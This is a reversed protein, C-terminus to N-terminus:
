AAEDGVESRDDEALSPEEAPVVHLIGEDMFEYVHVVLGLKFNVPVVQAVM